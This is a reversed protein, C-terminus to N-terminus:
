EKIARGILEALSYDRRLKHWEKSVRMSKDTEEDKMNHDKLERLRQDSATVIDLSGIQELIDENAKNSTYLTPNRMISFCNWAWTHAEVDAVDPILRVLM